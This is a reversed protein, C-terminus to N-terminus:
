EFRPLEGTHNVCLIRPGYDNVEVVSVSAPSIEIRLMLDLPIGAYCAITAKIPDGHGVLAIISNAFQTRLDDLAAVM